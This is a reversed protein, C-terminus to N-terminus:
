ITKEDALNLSTVYKEIRRPYPATPHGCSTVVTGLSAAGRHMRAAWSTMTRGGGITRHDMLVPNSGGDVVLCSTNKESGAVRAILSRFLSFPILVHIHIHHTM